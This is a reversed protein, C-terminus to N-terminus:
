NRLRRLREDEANTGSHIWVRPMACTRRQRARIGSPPPKELEKPDHPGFTASGKALRARPLRSRHRCPLTRHAVTEFLEQGFAVADAFLIRADLSALLHARKDPVYQLVLMEDLSLKTVVHRLALDQQDRMQHQGQRRGPARLRRPTKKAGQAVEGAVRRQPGRRHDGLDHDRDALRRQRLAPAVIRTDDVQQLRPLLLDPEKAAAIGLM